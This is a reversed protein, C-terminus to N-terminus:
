NARRIKEFIGTFEETTESLEEVSTALIKSAKSLQESFESLYENLNERTINQYDSLGTNLQNFIGGLKEEITSFQTVYNAGLNKAEELSKQIENITQKNIKLFEESQKNLINTAGKLSESTSDFNESTTKLSTSLSKFESLSGSLGNINSNLTKILNQGEQFSEKSKEILEEVQLTVDSEGEILRQITKELKEITELTKTQVENSSNILNKEQLEVVKKFDEAISKFIGQIMEANESATENAKTTSNSFDEKLARIIEGFNNALNDFHAQMKEISKPLDNLSKVTEGLTKSINELESTTEGTLSKKFNEILEQMSDKLEQIAEQLVKEASESKTAKLDEVAQTLKNLAPIVQENFVKTFNSGLITGISEITETSIQIGDALDTSFSKLAKTQEEQNHWLHKFLEKPFVEKEEHEYVFFDKMIKKQEEVLNEKEEEASYKFKSDLFSSFDNCDQDIKRFQFKEFLSFLISCGMGWVSTLFATGIGTLLKEISEKITEISETDFESIGFTLGLFTGLIGLGVLLNPVYLWTRYNLKTTIIREFCFYSDASIKTKGNEFTHKYIEWISSLYSINSLKEEDFNEVLDKLDKNIKNTHRLWLFLGSVVVILILFCIIGVTLDFENNKSIRFTLVSIITDM